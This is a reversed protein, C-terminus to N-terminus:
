RYPAAGVVATWKAVLADFAKKDNAEWAKAIAGAATVEGAKSRLRADVVRLLVEASAVAEGYATANSARAADWNKGTTALVDVLLPAITPGLKEHASTLRTWQKQMDAIAKAVITMRTDSGPGSGAQTGAQSGIQALIGRVLKAQNSRALAASSEPVGTRSAIVSLARFERLIISAESEKEAAAFIARSIADFDVATLGAVDELAHAITSAANQRKAPDPESPDLRGTILALSEPTGIFAAVQMAHIARQTDTGRVIPSLRSTATASFARRFVPTAAPDRLPEVLARRADDLSRSDRTTEITNVFGEIFGLLLKSQDANLPATATVIERPLTTAGAQPALAASPQPAAASAPLAAPVAVTLALSLSGLLLAKSTTMARVLRYRPAERPHDGRPLDSVALHMVPRPSAQPASVIPPLWDADGFPFGLSGGM